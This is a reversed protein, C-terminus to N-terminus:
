ANQSCRRLEEETPGPETTWAMIVQGPSFDEFTDQREEAFAHIQRLGDNDLYNALSDFTELVGRRYGGDSKQLEM